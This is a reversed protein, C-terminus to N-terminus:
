YKSSSRSDILTSSLARSCFSAERWRSTTYVEPKKFALPINLIGKLGLTIQISLWQCFADWPSTRNLSREYVIDVIDSCCRLFDLKKVLSFRSTGHKEQSVRQSRNWTRCNNWSKYADLTDLKERTASRHFESNIRMELKYTRLILSSKACFNRVSSNWINNPLKSKSIRWLVLFNGAFGRVKSSHLRQFILQNRSWKM